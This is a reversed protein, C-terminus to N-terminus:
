AWSVDSSENKLGRLSERKIENLSRYYWLLCELGLTFYLLLRWMVLQTFLNKHPGPQLNDLLNNTFLLSIVAAGCLLLGLWRVRVYIAGSPAVGEPSDNLLALVSHHHGAELEKRMSAVFHFPLVM